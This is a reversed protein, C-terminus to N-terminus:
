APPLEVAPAWSADGGGRAVDHGGAWPMQQGCRPCLCPCVIHAKVWSTCRPCMMPVTKCAIAVRASERRDQCLLSTICGGECCCCQPPRILRAQELARVDVICVDELQMWAYRCYFFASGNILFLLSTVAVASYIRLCPMLFIVTDYLGHYVVPILVTCLWSTTENGLFKRRCLNVGILLGTCCHLPSAFIMRQILMGQPNGTPQRRLFKLSYSFSEVASMGAASALSYVLLSGADAVRGQFMIRRITFYKVIEEPLAATLFATCVM